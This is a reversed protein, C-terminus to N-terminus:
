AAGAGVGGGDPPNGFNGSSNFRQNLGGGSIPTRQLIDATSSLGTRAIEEQGINVVPESDNLPSRIRSGTVVITDEDEIDQAFAPTSSLAIVGLVLASMIPRLISTSLLRKRGSM